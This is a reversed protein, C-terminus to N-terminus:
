LRWTSILSRQAYANLARRSIAPGVNRQAVPGRSPPGTTDLGHTVGHVQMYIGYGLDLALLSAVAVAALRRRDRVAYAAGAYVVPAAFFLARGWDLAFTMGAACLAVLVLGRRAFELRRLAFPAVLWLLGYDLALRRLELHWGGHSLADRLVGLRAHLFPGTYGPQYGEGVAVVTARIYLYVAIPLLTVQATDRFARVDIVQQAWAAYTLPILFICSEHITTGILLTLALPLKSRRVIFLCGLTIVCIAAPDVMLGNRLFVVLLPPSVSFGVALAAALWAGVEFECLLAFMAGGAVAACVLAIAPWSFGHSFPLVHVLYPIGVRFAYPFNHPGAPHTAMRAYYPGDGSPPGSEHRLVANAGLEVLLCAGAVWLARPWRTPSFRWGGAKM